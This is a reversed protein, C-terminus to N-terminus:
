TVYNWVNGDRYLLWRSIEIVGVLQNKALRHGNHHASLSLNAQQCIGTDADRIIINNSFLQGARSPFCHVMVHLHVM